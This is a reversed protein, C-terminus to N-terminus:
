CGTNRTRMVPSESRAHTRGWHSTGASRMNEINTWLGLNRCSSRSISFNCCENFQRKQFHTAEPDSVGSADQATPFESHNYDNAPTPKVISSDSATISSAASSSRTEAGRLARLLRPVHSTLIASGPIGYNVELAEASESHESTGRTGM